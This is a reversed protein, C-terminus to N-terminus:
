RARSLETAAALLGAARLGEAGPGSRLVEDTPATWSTPAATQAGAAPAGGLTSAVTAAVVWGTVVLPWRRRRARM